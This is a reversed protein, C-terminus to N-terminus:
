DVDRALAVIVFLANRADADRSSMASAVAYTNWDEIRGTRFQASRAALAFLALQRATEPQPRGRALHLLALNGAIDPDFPNAGFAKTQLDLAETLNRRGWYANQAEENLRRAEDPALEQAVGSIDIRIRVARAADIVTREQVPHYANAATWLVRSIESQ